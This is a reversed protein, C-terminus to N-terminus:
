KGLWLFDTCVEAFETCMELSVFIPAYNRFFRHGNEFNLLFEFSPRTIACTYITRIHSM